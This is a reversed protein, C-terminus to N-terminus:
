AQMQNKDLYNNLFNLNHYNFITLCMSAWASSMHPLWLAM